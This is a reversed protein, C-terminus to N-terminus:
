LLSGEVLALKLVVVLYTSLGESHEEQDLRYDCWGVMRLPVIVVRYNWIALAVGVIIPMEPM